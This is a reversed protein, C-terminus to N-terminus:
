SVVTTLYDTLPCFHNWMLTSIWWKQCWLGDNCWSSWWWCPWNFVRDMMLQGKDILTKDDRTKKENIMLAATASSRSCWDSTKTWSRQLTGGNRSISREGTTGTVCGCQHEICGWVRSTNRSRWRTEECQHLPCSGIREWYGKKWISLIPTKESRKLRSWM